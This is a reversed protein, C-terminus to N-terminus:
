ISIRWSQEAYFRTFVEPYSQRRCSQSESRTTRSIEEKRAKLAAAKELRATEEEDTVTILTETSMENEKGAEVDVEKGEHFISSMSWPLDLATIGSQLLSSQSTSTVLTEGSVSRGKDNATNDVELLCDQSQRAKKSRPVQKARGQSVEKLDMSQSVQSSVDTASEDPTPLLPVVDDRQVIITDSENSQTSASPTRTPKPRTQRAQSRKAAASLGSFSLLTQKFPM